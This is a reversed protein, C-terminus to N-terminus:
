ETLVWTLCLTVKGDKNLLKVSVGSVGKMPFFTCHLKKSRFQKCYPLAEQSILLFFWKICSISGYNRHTKSMELQWQPKLYSTLFTCIPMKSLSRNIATLILLHGFFIYFFFSFFVEHIGIARNSVFLFSFKM